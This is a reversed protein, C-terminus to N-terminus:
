KTANDQGSVTIFSIDSRSLFRIPMAGLGLGRDVYLIGGNKLTSTGEIMDPTIDNDPMYLAGIFPLKIQGGHTHGALMLDISTNATGRSAQPFHSLAILLDSDNSPCAKGIGSYRVNMPEIGCIVINKGRIIKNTETNNLVTIEGRKIEKIFDSGKPNAAEHNGSVFFTKGSFYGAIKELFLAEETNDVSMKDIMDGTFVVIDPHFAIMRKYIDTDPTITRNHADSIQLIRISEGKSLKETYISVARIEPFFSDIIAIVIVVFFVAIMMGTLFFKKIMRKDKMPEAQDADM